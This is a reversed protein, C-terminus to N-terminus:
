GWWRTLRNLQLKERPSGTERLRLRDCGPDFHVFWTASVTYLAVASTSLADLYGSLGQRIQLLFGTPFRM